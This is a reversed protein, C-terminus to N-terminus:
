VKLELSPLCVGSCLQGKRKLGVVCLFLLSRVRVGKLERSLSRLDREMLGRALDQPARGLLDPSLSLHAPETYLICQQSLLTRM